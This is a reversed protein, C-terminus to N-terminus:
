SRQPSAALLRGIPDWVYAVQPVRQGAVAVNAQVAPRGGLREYFWRNPNDRLVWLFASACGRAHLWGGAATLLRRGLGRDRWDDLVYLTEVEGDAYSARARGATAFGRVALGPGADSAVYVGSGSAISRGYFQALRSLSLHALYDAPLIGAYTSQWAAIHVGAIGPADRLRARRVVVDSMGAESM